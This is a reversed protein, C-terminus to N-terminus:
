IKQVNLTDTCAQLLQLITKKEVPHIVNPAIEAFPILAFKRFILAPHPLQLIPENCIFNEILLIDIDIVRPGMKITRKRGMLTEIHLLTKMLTIPQINTELALAQNYFNPQNTVGWAATEYFSSATKITGCQQEILQKAKNLNDIRNGINGGTLLFATYPTNM